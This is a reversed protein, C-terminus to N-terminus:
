SDSNLIRIAYHFFITQAFSFGGARIPTIVRADSLYERRKIDVFSSFGLVDGDQLKELEITEGQDNELTLSIAGQLILWM